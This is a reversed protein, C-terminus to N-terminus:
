VPNVSGLLGILLVETTFSERTYCPSLVAVAGFLGLVVPLCTMESAGTAFLLKIMIRRLVQVLGRRLWLTAMATAGTCIHPYHVIPHYSGSLAGSERAAGSSTKHVSVVHPHVAPIIAPHPYDPQHQDDRQYQDEPCTPSSQTNRRPFSNMAQLAPPSIVSSSHLLARLSPANVNTCKSLM